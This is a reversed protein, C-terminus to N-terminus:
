RDRTTRDTPETPEDDPILRVRAGVVGAVVGAVEDPSCPKPVFAAAGLHASLEPAKPSSSVLILPPPEPLRGLEDILTRASRGPEVSDLLVADIGGERARAVAEPVDREALVAYKRAALAKSWSERLAPDAQVVLIAPM